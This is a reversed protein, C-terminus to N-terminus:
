HLEEVARQLRTLAETLTARTCALNIRQYGEGDKGFIRGSDLFIKAKNLFLDDLEDATLHLERCDLWALYTGEPRILRVGKINDKVFRETYDLNGRIYSLMGQYWEEGHAYAARTAVLGLTNQQSYGMASVEQRFRRELPENEIIINSVQLGALNFTKSASTCTITFAPFSPDCSRFVQQQISPDLVLDDHIEDSVVLVHHRACIRGIRALEERTWVRGGPNHPNCLLFLPVNNEDLAKEIGAEDFHYQGNEDSLLPVNVVKRGNDRIVEYFPYYVPGTVLVGDGEETFARVAAALAFVVGPTIVVSNPDIRWNHHREYWSSLAEFYADDAETYGFIAEEAREKIADAVFSSTRFDMDAVWLPLAGEPAGRKVAWDWKLSGTGIRSVPTDFNLNQEQATM